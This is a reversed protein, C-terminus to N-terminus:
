WIINLKLKKNNKNCYINEFKINKNQAKVCELYQIVAELGVM